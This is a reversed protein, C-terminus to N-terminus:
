GDRRGKPLLVAHLDAGAREVSKWEYEALGGMRWGGAGVAARGDGGLASAAVFLHVEDLMGSRM